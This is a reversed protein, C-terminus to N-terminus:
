LRHGRNRPQDASRAAGITDKAQAALQDTADICITAMQAWTSEIPMAELAQENQRVEAAAEATPLITVV